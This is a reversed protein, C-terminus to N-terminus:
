ITSGFREVYNDYSIISLSWIKYKKSIKKSNKSVILFDSSRFIRSWKFTTFLILIFFPLHLQKSLRSLLLIHFKFQIRVNNMNLRVNRMWSIKNCKVKQCTILLNLGFHNGFFERWVKNTREAKINALENWNKHARMKFCILFIQLSPQSQINAWAYWWVGQTCSM